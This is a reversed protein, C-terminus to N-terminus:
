FGDVQNKIIQKHEAQKNLLEKGQRAAWRINAAVVSIDLLAHLYYSGSNQWQELAEKLQEWLTESFPEPEVAQGECFYLRLKENIRSITDCSGLLIDLIERFDKSLPLNGHTWRRKSRSITIECIEQAKGMMELNYEIYAIIKQARSDEAPSGFLTEEHVYLNALKLCEELDKVNAEMRERCKEYHQPDSAGFSRIAAAFFEVTEETATKLKETLKKEYRPRFLLVNVALAVVLGIFIVASRSLAHSIFQDPASSMVFIAAVIGMLVGRQLHLLSYLWIIIMVVIGMAIPSAGITFGVVFAILVGLAHVLLQERAAEFTLRLSPQLNIVASVAGFLAPELGLLKCIFMTISVAIGTKILRAGPIM